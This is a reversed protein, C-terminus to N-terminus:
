IQQTMFQISLGVAVCTDAAVGVEAVEDVHWEEELVDAEPPDGYSL